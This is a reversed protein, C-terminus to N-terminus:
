KENDGDKPSAGASKEELALGSESRLMMVKRKM